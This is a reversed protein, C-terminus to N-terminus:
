NAKPTKYDLSKVTFEQGYYSSDEPYNAFISRKGDSPGCFNYGFGFKNAFAKICFYSIGLYYDQGPIRVVRILERSKQYNFPFKGAGIVLHAYERGNVEFIQGKISEPVIFINFGFLRNEGNKPKYSQYSSAKATEFVYKNDVKRLEVEKLRDIGWLSMTMSPGSSIPNSLPWSQIGLGKPKGDVSVGSVIKYNTASSFQVFGDPHYSFKVIDSARYQQNTLEMSSVEGDDGYGVDLIGLRGFQTNDYIPLLVGFGGNKYPLLKFLNYYKKSSSDYITIRIM